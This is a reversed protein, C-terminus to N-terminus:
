ALSLICHCTPGVSRPATIFLIKGIRKEKSEFPCLCRGGCRPCGERYIGVGNRRRKAPLSKFRKPKLPWSRGRRPLLVRPLMTLTLLLLLVMARTPILIPGVPGGAKAILLM